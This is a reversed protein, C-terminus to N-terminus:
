QVIAPLVLKGTAHPEILGLSDLRPLKTESEAGLDTLQTWHQRSGFSVPLCGPLLLRAEAHWSIDTCRGVQRGTM